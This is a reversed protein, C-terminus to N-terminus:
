NLDPNAFYRFSIWFLRLEKIIVCFPLGAPTNIEGDSNSSKLCVLSKM